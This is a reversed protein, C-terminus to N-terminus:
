FPICNTSADDDALAGDLMGTLMSGVIGGLSM